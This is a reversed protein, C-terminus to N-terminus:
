SRACTPAPLLGEGIRSSPSADGAAALAAAVDAAATPNFLAGYEVIAAAERLASPSWVVRM